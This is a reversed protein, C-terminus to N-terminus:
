CCKEDSSVFILVLVCSLLIKFENELVVFFTLKMLTYSSHHSFDFLTVIIGVSFSFCCCGGVTGEEDFVFYYVFAHACQRCHRIKLVTDIKLFIFLFFFVLVM